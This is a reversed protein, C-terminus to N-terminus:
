KLMRRKILRFISMIRVYIHEAIPYLIELRLRHFLFIFYYRLAIRSFPSGGYKRSVEYTQKRIKLRSNFDKPNNYISDSRVILRSLVKNISYVEFKEAIRIMVDFDDGSSDLWGIREMVARKYFASITSIHRATNVFDKFNFKEVKHLCLLRGDEDIKECNGHVFFAKPNSIFFDVVIRIAGPTYVDDAGLIGFIEGKAMKLGKNWADGGENDPESIFHIREPYEKNYASIINLTGDSSVGDVIVHEINYYDQSLVNLICKDIYAADNRVPTIISVLPEKSM